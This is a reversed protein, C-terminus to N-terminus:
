RRLAVQEATKTKLNDIAVTIPHALRGVPAKGTIIVQDGVQFFDYLKEVDKYAVNLCGHSMTRVGFQTHWYAGHIYFHPKFQLNWKTNPLNYGPGVYHVVPVKRQVAFTGVPTKNFTGSSIPVTGLLVGNFYYGLQQTALDARAARKVTSTVAGKLWPDFGQAVEKYDTAGDGDTDAKTFDTGLAHEIADSLGDADTDVEDMRKHDGVLPSYGQQVEEGDGYGDGDTDSNQPDTHYLRVEDYDLLGDGDTDLMAQTQAHAWTGNLLIM